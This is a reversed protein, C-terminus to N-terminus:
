TPVGPVGGVIMLYQDLVRRQFRPEREVGTTGPQETMQRVLEGHPGTWVRNFDALYEVYSDFRSNKSRGLVLNLGNRAYQDWATFSEPRIFTALRSVASVLSRTGGSTGFERRVAGREFDVLEHGSRDNLATAFEQSDRLMCRFEAQRGKRITRAVSWKKCFLGFRVPDALIPNGSIAGGHEFVDRWEQWGGRAWTVALRVQQDEPSLPARSLRM